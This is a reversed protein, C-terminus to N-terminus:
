ACLEADSFAYLDESGAMAQQLLLAHEPLLRNM